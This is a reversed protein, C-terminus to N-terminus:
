DELPGVLLLYVPQEPVPLDVARRMAAEDLKGFGISGLSLATAQLLVNQAVHGAEMLALAVGSEGFERKSRSYRATILIALAAWDVEEQDCAAKLLNARLDGAKRLSLVHEYPDYVYAGAPLGDVQMAILYTHLPYVAGASPATRLGGLGTIGQAAWLLQAAHDLAVPSDAFM